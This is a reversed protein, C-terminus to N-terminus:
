HYQVTFTGFLFPMLQKFLEKSYTSHEGGV